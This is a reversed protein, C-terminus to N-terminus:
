FNWWQLGILSTGGILHIVMILTSVWTHPDNESPISADESHTVMLYHEESGIGGDIHLVVATCGGGTHEWEWTAGTLASLEAVYQHEQEESYLM